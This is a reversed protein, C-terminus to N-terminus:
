GAGGGESDSDSDSGTDDGEVEAMEKDIRQFTHNARRGGKLCNATKIGASLARKGTFYLVVDQVNPYVALVDRTVYALLADALKNEAGPELINPGMKIMERVLPGDADVLATTATRPDGDVHLRLKLLREYQQCLEKRKREGARLWTLWSAAIREGPLPVPRPAHPAAPPGLPPPDAPDPAPPLLHLALKRVSGPTVAQLWQWLQQCLGGWTM